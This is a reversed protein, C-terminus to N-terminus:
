AQPNLIDVPPVTADPKSCHFPPFLDDLGQRIFHTLAQKSVQTMSAWLCCVRLNEQSRTSGKVGQAVKAIDVVDDCLVHPACTDGPWTQTGLAKPMREGRPHESSALRELHDCIHKTM